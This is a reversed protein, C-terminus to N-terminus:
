AARRRAIALFSHGCYPDLVKMVAGRLLRKPMSGRSGFLWEVPKAMSPVDERLSIECATGVWREVDFGSAALRTSVDERSLAFQYFDAPEAAFDM